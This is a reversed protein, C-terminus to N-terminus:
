KLNQALLSLVVTALKGYAERFPEKDNKNFLMMADSKKICKVWELPSINKDKVNNLDDRECMFTVEKFDIDEVEKGTKLCYWVYPINFGAVTMAYSLAGNRFNTELFYPVGDVIKIDFDFIGDYDVIDLFKKLVAEDVYTIDKKITAYSTSGRGLPYERIKKLEGFIYVNGKDDRCGCYGTMSNEKGNVFHEVLVEEYGSEISRLWQVTENYDQENYCIRIDAKLGDVSRLPKVIYPFPYESLKKFGDENVQMVFGEPIHFGAEKAYNCMNYKNMYHLMNGKFGSCICKDKLLNYSNDIFMAASDSGPFLVPCGNFDEASQLIADIVEKETKAHYTKKTYKSSEAYGFDSMNIYVVPIGREGLSRVMGLTNFHWDGIVAAFYNIDKKKNDM